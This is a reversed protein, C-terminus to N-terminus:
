RSPLIGGMKLEENYFDSVSELYRGPSVGCVAKFDRIFHAQDHYDLGHALATLSIEAREMARCASNVRIIRALLKTGLGIKEHVIRNLHRESYGTERSLERVRALGRSASLSSLVHRALLSEAGRGLRALFVNDLCLFFAQFDPRRGDGCFRAFGEGVDRSLDADVDGLPAVANHWEGMPHGVLRNAGCPLFEVFVYLRPGGPGSSVTAVESTPGWFWLDLREGTVACAICGSADPVINLCETRSRREPRFLTYHSIAERLAPHPLVYTREATVAAVERPFEAGMGHPWKDM